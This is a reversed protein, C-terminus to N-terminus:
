LQDLKDIGIFVDANDLPYLQGTFIVTPYAYTGSIRVECLNANKTLAIKVKAVLRKTLKMEFITEGKNTTKVRFESAKCKFTDNETDYTQLVAKDENLLFFNTQPDCGKIVGKNEYISRDFKIVFAKNKLAELAQKHKISDAAEALAKISDRRRGSRNKQALSPCISLFLALFLLIIRKM